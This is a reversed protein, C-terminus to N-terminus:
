RRRGKGSQTAYYALLLAGLTVGVELAEEAGLLSLILWVPM